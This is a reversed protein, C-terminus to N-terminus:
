DYYLYFRRPTKRAYSKKAFIRVPCFFDGM